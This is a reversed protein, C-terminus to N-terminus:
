RMGSVARRRYMLGDALEIAHGPSTATALKAWGFSLGDALEDGALAEIVREVYPTPQDCKAGVLIVAFRSEGIRAVVDTSRCLGSLATAVVRLERDGLASRREGDVRRYRNVEAILLISSTSQRDALKWERELLPDFGHENLLGTAADIDSEGSDATSSDTASREM